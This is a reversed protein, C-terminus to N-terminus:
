RPALARQRPGFPKTPRGRWGTAPHREPFGASARAVDLASLIGIPRESSPEVVLVHSLDHVVMRTAALSLDDDPSVIPVPSTMVTRASISRLDANAAARLIDSSEVIGWQTDRQPAEGHARVVVAHVRNTAMMRAVTRLSTEPLCSILGSHMGDRVRLSRLSGSANMRIVEELGRYTWAVRGADPIESM